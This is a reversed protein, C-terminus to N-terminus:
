KGDIDHLRQKIQQIEIGLGELTDPGTYVEHPTGIPVFIAKLFVDKPYRCHSVGVDRGPQMLIHYRGEAKSYYNDIPYLFDGCFVQRVEWGEAPIIPFDKVSEGRMAFRTPTFTGEGEVETYVTFMKHAYEEPVRTAPVQAM